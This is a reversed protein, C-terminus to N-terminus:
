FGKVWDNKRCSPTTVTLLEEARPVPMTFTEPVPLSTRPFPTATLLVRTMFTVLGPAPDPTSDPGGDVPVAVQLPVMVRFLEGEEPPWKSPPFAVPPSTSVPDILEETGTM